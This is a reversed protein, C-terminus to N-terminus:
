KDIKVLVYQEPNVKAHLVGGLCDSMAEIGKKIVISNQEDIIVDTGVHLPTSALSDRFGDLRTYKCYIWRNRSADTLISGLGLLPVNSPEIVESGIGSGPFIPHKDIYRIVPYNLWVNFLPSIDIVHWDAYTYSFQHRHNASVINLNVLEAFQGGLGARPIETFGYTNMVRNLLGGFNFSRSISRTFQMWFETNKTWATPAPAINGDFADPNEGGLTFKDKYYIYALEDIIDDGNNGKVAFTIETPDFMFHVGISKGETAFVYTIVAEYRSSESMGPSYYSSIGDYPFMFSLSDWDQPTFDLDRSYVYEFLDPVNVRGYYRKILMQKGM